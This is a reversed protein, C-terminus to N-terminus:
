SQDPLINSQVLTRVGPLVRSVLYESPAMETIAALEELKDVTDGDLTLPLHESIEPM